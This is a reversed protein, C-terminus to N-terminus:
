FQRCLEVESPRSPPLSVSVTLLHAATWSLSTLCRTLSQAFALRLSLAKLNRSDFLLESRTSTQMYMKHSYRRDERRFRRGVTESHGQAICRVGKLPLTDLFPTPFDDRRARMTYKGYTSGPPLTQVPGCHDLCPFLLSLPFKDAYQSLYIMDSPVAPTFYDYVGCRCIQQVPGFSPDKSLFDLHAPLRCLNRM